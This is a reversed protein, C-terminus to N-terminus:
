SKKHIVATQVGAAEEFRTIQQGMKRAWAEVDAKFSPDSAQVTLTDGVALTKIARSIKVIPM